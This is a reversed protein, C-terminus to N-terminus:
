DGKMRGGQWPRIEKATFQDPGSQEGLIKINEGSKLQVRHAIQANQVFIVWEKESFDRLTINEEDKSLITGSLYGEAPKSWM